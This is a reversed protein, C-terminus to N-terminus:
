TITWMTAQKAILTADFSMDRLLSRSMVLVATEM